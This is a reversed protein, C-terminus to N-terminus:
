QGPTDLDVAYEVITTDGRRVIPHAVELVHGDAALMRRTWRLVPTGSPLRLAEAEDPTPMGATMDELIRVVPTGLFAMQAVTGGPWPERIPDAVPTGQVDAWRVYSVSLQTPEEDAYFRFHRALLLEGQDCGFLGALETTAPMQEFRKDLRYETWAINEDATFATAPEPRPRYRDATMRHVPPRHRVITGARTRTDVLGEARLAALAARITGTSAGYLEELEGLTPLTSGPPYEGGVIRARLDAAVQQYAPKAM